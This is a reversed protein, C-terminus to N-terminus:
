VYTASGIVAMAGNNPMVHDSMTLDVWTVGPTNLIADSVWSSYITQAPQKVGNVQYAPKAMLHLMASVSIETAARLSVTDPSLHVTYNIPEPIPALPFFDRVAVPRLMNLAASVAAIDAALPFGNTNAFATARLDDCMFRLSVTGVGMELPSCWARTVGPVTLVWAEYDDADGGMPPKRIRDLVRVRLEADTEKDAGGTISVAVASGGDVGQVAAALSLFTGQQINGLAGPTLCILPVTTLGVGITIDQTTQFQVQGKSTSATLLSGNPLPTGVIGKITCTGVSFIAAKRGANPLWINAHRDLWEAEATDPLLQLSLWQLYMLLEFSMGASNDSAIRLPSNPLIVAGPPLNGLVYNKGKLRWDKLLPISFPM